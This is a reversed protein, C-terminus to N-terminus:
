FSHQFNMKKFEKMEYSSICNLTTFKSNIEGILEKPLDLEEGKFPISVIEIQHTM